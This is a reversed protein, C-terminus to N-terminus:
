SVRQNEKSNRLAYYVSILKMNKIDYCIAAINNNESIDDYRNQEVVLYSMYNSPCWSFATKSEYLKLNALHFNCAADLFPTPKDEGEVTAANNRCQMTLETRGRYKAPRNQCIVYVFFFCYDTEIILEIIMKKGVLVM